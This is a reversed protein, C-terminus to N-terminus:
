RHLDELEAEARDPEGRRVWSRRRTLQAVVDATEAPACGELGSLRVLTESVAELAVDIRVRGCLGTLADALEHHTLPRAATTM